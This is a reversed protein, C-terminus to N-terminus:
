KRRWTDRPQGPTGRPTEEIAARNRELEREARKVDRM